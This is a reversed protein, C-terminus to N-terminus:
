LEVEGRTYDEPINFLGPDLEDKRFESIELMVLREGDGGIEIIRVPILADGGIESLLFGPVIGPAPIELFEDFDKLIGVDEGSLGFQGAEVFWAENVKNGNEYVAYRDAKWGGVMIGEEEKVVSKEVDIIDVLGVYDPPLLSRIVPAAEEREDEPIGELIEKIMEMAQEIHAKVAEMEVSTLEYYSKESKDLVILRDADPRRRFIISGMAGYQDEAMDVRLRDGGIYIKRILSEPTTEMVIGESFAFVGAALCLIIATATKLNKRQIVAGVKM